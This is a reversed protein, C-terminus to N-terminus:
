KLARQVFLGVVLYAYAAAGLVGLAQGGTVLVPVGAVAGGAEVLLGGLIAAFATAGLRDGALPFRAVSPPYFQYTIGVISLGLFGLLGLRYHAAVVNPQLGVFAFWAGAAVTLVGCGMGALVVYFGLRDRDSRVFLLGYAGAFGVVALTELAAGAQLVTGAPLGVALLTPGVAGALLVPAALWRPVTTVLFRPLLRFGVAFLLLVAAGVALVHSVRPPYGDMPSPLGTLSAVTLYAGAGLYAFVLPVAANSLRDLPRRHANHEGTGTEGGTLNGRLTLLMAGLFVAVGAAWAVAGVQRLIRPVGPVWGAALGGAGLVSLPLQVTPARTPRLERDFYAPVLSYAKGFLMHFVFGFLALPVAVRRSAGLLVAVQWCVLWGVSAAVFGRAWRSVIASATSM